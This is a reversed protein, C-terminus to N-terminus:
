PIGYVCGPTKQTKQRSKAPSSGLLAAELASHEVLASEIRRTSTTRAAAAVFAAYHDKSEFSITVPGDGGTSGKGLSDVFAQYEVVNDFTLTIPM